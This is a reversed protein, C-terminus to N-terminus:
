VFDSDDSERNLDIEKTGFSELEESFNDQQYVASGFGLIPFFVIPLLWMGVAFGSSRDFKKALEINAILSLVLLILGGFPVFSLAVWWGPKGSIQFLVVFNYIPVISAWGPQGAKQFVRWFMFAYIGLIMAIWVLIVLFGGFIFAASEM